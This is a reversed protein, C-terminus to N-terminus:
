RIVDKELRAIRREIRRRAAVAMRPGREELRRKLKEATEKKQKMSREIARYIGIAALSALFFGFFDLAELLENPIEIANDLRYAMELALRSDRQIQNLGVLEEGIDETVNLLLGLMQDHHRGVFAAAQKEKQRRSQAKRNM